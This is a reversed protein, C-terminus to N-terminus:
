ESKDRTHADKCMLHKQDKTRMVTLIEEKDQRKKLRNMVKQHIELVKDKIGRHYEQDIKERIMKSIDEFDSSFIIDKWNERRISFGEFEAKVRYIFITKKDFTVNYIGVVGGKLLRLV